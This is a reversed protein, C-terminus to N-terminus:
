LATLAFSRCPRQFLGLLNTDDYRYFTVPGKIDSGNDFADDRAGPSHMDLRDNGSSIMNCDTCALTRKVAPIPRSVRDWSRM